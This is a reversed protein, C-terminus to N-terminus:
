TATAWFTLRMEHRCATCQYDRIAADSGEPLREISAVEMVDGCRCTPRETSGPVLLREFAFM